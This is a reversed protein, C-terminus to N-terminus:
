RALEFAQLWNRVCSLHLARALNSSTPDMLDPRRGSLLLVDGAFDRFSAGAVSPVAQRMLPLRSHVALRPLIDGRLTQVDDDITIGIATFSQKSNM